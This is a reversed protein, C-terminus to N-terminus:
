KRPKPHPAFLRALEHTLEKYDKLQDKKCLRKIDLFHNFHLEEIEKKLISIEGLLASKDLENEVSLLIYLENKVDKLEKDKANIQSQHQAILKEYSAVQEEDFHLKEIVVNKPGEHNKHHPPHHPKKIVFMMILVINLTILAIVLISLLRTKTM